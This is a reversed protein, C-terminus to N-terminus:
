RLSSAPVALGVALWRRRTGWQSISQASGASGKSAARQARSADAAQAVTTVVEQNHWPKSIIRYVEGSNVADLAIRFDEAATCLVRAATPVKERAAQLLAIGDMGPMMYDSIIVTPRDSELHSLADEPSSSTRVDFGAGELIRKLNRLILVDDDIVVVRDPSM